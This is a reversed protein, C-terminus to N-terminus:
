NPAPAAKDSIRNQKTTIADKLIRGSMFEYHYYLAQM